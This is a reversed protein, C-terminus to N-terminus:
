LPYLLKGWIINNLITHWEISPHCTITDPICKKWTLSWPAIVLTMSLTTPRKPHNPHLRVDVTNCTSYSHLLWKWFTYVPMVQLYFKLRTLLGDFGISVLRLLTFVTYYVWTTPMLFVLITFSLTGVFLQDTQYQCSDVRERLPNKKKGLFLRFLATIGRLQINFLRAACVYICYTHFSVLALLDAAISLQFTIGLRGFLLLIKFALDMLPKSFILFTWWLKIHYMFFQGMTNNLAHNLKLGAPVGMLWTILDKLTEVVKEANNLLLQSPLTDEVYYRLLRLVFIGLAIDIIIAWAYNGTKLTFGKNRIVTVLMWKINELWDHVHLGLSSYRLVLLLKGTVKSLLLVPYLYFLMHYTLLTEKIRIFRSKVRLEDKKGQILKALESFHDGSITKSEFLETERLARQDYLVIITRITLPDINVNNLIINTLCYETRIENRFCKVTIHIWDSHKRDLSEKSVNSPNTYCGITDLACKISELSGVKRLGIIYIRKTNNQTDHIVRGFVYGSPEMHLGQPIFVLLNNTM